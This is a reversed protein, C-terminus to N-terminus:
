NEWWRRLQLRVMYPMAKLLSQKRKYDLENFNSNWLEIAKRNYLDDFVKDSIITSIYNKM